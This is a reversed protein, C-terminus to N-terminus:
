IKKNIAIFTMRDETKQTGHGRGHGGHDSTIIYLWEEDKYEPRSEIHEILEYAFRDANTIGAVYRYNDNGFGHMHGNYDPFENIGFIVETGGDIASMMVRQLEEEDKVQRFELPLINEAANKIENKYTITFHDQWISSFIASKGSQAARTLVTPCDDRLITHKVM